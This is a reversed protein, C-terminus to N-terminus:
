LFFIINIVFCNGTQITVNQPLFRDDPNFDENAILAKNVEIADIMKEGIVLIM